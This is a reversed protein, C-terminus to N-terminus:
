PQASEPIQGPVPCWHWLTVRWGRGANPKCVTPWAMKKEELIDLFDGVTNLSMGSLEALVKASKPGDMLALIIELYGERYAKSSQRSM